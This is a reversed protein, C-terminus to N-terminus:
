LGKIEPKGELGNIPFCNIKDEPNGPYDTMHNPIGGFGYGMYKKKFAYANLVSGVQMIAEEYLNLKDGENLKHLSTPETPDGNSATYDIAVSM